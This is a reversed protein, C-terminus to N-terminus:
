SWNALVTLFDVIDVTGSNDFDAPCPEPPAPCPGWSALVNLFDVINVTGDDNTDGLLTEVILVAQSTAVSPIDQTISEGDSGPWAIRVDVAQRGPVAFTLDIANQASFGGKAEVQQFGLRDAPDGLHGEAYVTVRAGIGDRNSFGFGHAHDRPQWRIDAVQVIPSDFLLTCDFQIMAAREQQGLSVWAPSCTYWAGFGTVCESKIRWGPDGIRFVHGHSLGSGRLRQQKAPQHSSQDEGCDQNTRDVQERLSVHIVERNPGSLDAMDVDGDRHLSEPSGLAKGLLEAQRDRAHHRLCGIIIGAHTDGDHLRSM